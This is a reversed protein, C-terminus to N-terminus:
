PVSFPFNKIMKSRAGTGQHGEAEEKTLVTPNDKVTEKAMQHRLKRMQLIFVFIITEFLM